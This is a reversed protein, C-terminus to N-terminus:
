KVSQLMEQIQLVRAGFDGATPLATKGSVAEIFRAIEITLPLESSEFVVVAEAETEEVHLLKDGTWMYASGDELDFSMSHSTVRSGRDILSVVETKPYVLTTEIADCASEVQGLRQLTGGTPRGLLDLALALHHTLLSFEIPEEFTGYKRWTLTISQLQRPDLRRKLEVYVPHFLFQYGTALVLGRATALEALAQAEASSQALPKEVLVHKGAELLRHAIEAHTAIPTAVVVADLTPDACIEEITTHRAGPCHETLWPTPESGLRSAYAAFRTATDLQPAINKAWRGAGILATKLQETM